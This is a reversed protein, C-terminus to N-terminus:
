KIQPTPVGDSSIDYPESQMIGFVKRMYDVVLPMYDDPMTLKDTLVSSQTVIMRVIAKMKSIDTCSYINMVDTDVWYYSDECSKPLHYLFDIETPSIPYASVKKGSGAILFVFSINHGRAIGVPQQPLTLNWWGTDNDKTLVLGKYTGYFGDPVTGTGELQINDKYAAAAAAAIAGNLYSNILFPTIETDDPAMGALLIRQIQECLFQRTVGM